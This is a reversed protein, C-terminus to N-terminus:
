KPYLITEIRIQIKGMRTIKVPPQEITLLTKSMFKGTGFPISINLEIIKKIAQHGIQIPICSIHSLSSVQSDRKLSMKITNITSKITMKTPRAITRPLM